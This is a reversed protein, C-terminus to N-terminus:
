SIKNKYIIKAHRNKILVSLKNKLTQNNPERRVLGIYKIIMEPITPTIFKHKTGFHYTYWDIKIKGGRVGCCVCGWSYGRLIKM